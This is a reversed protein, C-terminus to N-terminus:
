PSASATSRSMSRTTGARAPRRPYSKPSFNSVRGVAVGGGRGRTLGGAGSPEEGQALAGLPRGSLAFGHAEVRHGRLRARLCESLHDGRAPSDRTPAIGDHALRLLDALRCERDEIMERRLDEGSACLVVQGNRGHGPNPRVSGFRWRRRRHGGWRCRVVQHCRRSQTSLSRSVIPSTM